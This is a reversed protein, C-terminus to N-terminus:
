QKTSRRKFIGSELQLAKGDFNRFIDIFTRKKEVNKLLIGLSM